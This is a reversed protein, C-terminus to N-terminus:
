NWVVGGLHNAKVIEKLSYNGANIFQDKWNIPGFRGRPQGVNYNLKFLSQDWAIECGIWIYKHNSYLCFLLFWYIKPKTSVKKLLRCKSGKKILVNKAEKLINEKFCKKDKLFDKSSSWKDKTL